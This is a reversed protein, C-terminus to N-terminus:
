KSLHTKQHTYMELNSSTQNIIKGWLVSWLVCILSSVFLQLCKELIIFYFLKWLRCLFSLSAKKDLWVTFGKIPINPLTPDQKLQSIILDINFATRTWRTFKLLLFWFYWGAELYNLQVESCLELVNKHLCFIHLMWCFNAIGQTKDSTVPRPSGQCGPPQSETHQTPLPTRNGVLPRLDWM